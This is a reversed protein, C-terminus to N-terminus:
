QAVEIPTAALREALRGLIEEALGQYDQALDQASKSFVRDKRGSRVREWWPNEDDQRLKATEYEHMLVGLERAHDAANANERVFSRFVPATDGLAKQVEDRVAGLRVSRPNFNVMAVGLLELAPNYRRRVEPFKAAMKELGQLSSADRFTPIVLFRAAALAAEVLVSHTAPQCDFIIVNYRQGLPELAKAISTVAGIDDRSKRGALLHELDATSGGAPVVDLNPRVGVIAPEIPQGAVVAQLLRSGADDESSGAYGLDQGANGQPDLDVLLVHWGSHAAVGALNTSLTTKGVGGKGNAVALGHALAM